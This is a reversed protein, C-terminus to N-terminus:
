DEKWKQLIIEQETLTALKSLTVVLREDANIDLALVGRFTTHPCKQSFHSGLYCLNFEIVHTCHCIGRNKSYAIASVQNFM